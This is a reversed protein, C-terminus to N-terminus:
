HEGLPGHSLLHDRQMADIRVGPLVRRVPDEIGVELAHLESVVVVVTEAPREILTNQWGNARPPAIPVSKPEIHAAKVARHSRAEPRNMAEQIRTAPPDRTAATWRRAHALRIL